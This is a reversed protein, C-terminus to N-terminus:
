SFEREIIDMLEEESGDYLIVPTALHPTNHGFTTQTQSLPVVDERPGTTLFAQPSSHPPPAFADHGRPNNGAGRSGQPGQAGGLGSSSSSASSEQQQQEDEDGSSFHCLGYTRSRTFAKKSAGQNKKGRRRVAEEAEGFSDLEADADDDDGSLQSDHGASHCDMPSRRRAHVRLADFADKKSPAGSSSTKKAPKGEGLGAPAVKTGRSTGSGM